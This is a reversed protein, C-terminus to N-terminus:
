LMQYAASHQCACFETGLKVPLCLDPCDTDALGIHLQSNTFTEPWANHQYIQATTYVPLAGCTCAVM